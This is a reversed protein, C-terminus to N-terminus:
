ESLSKKVNNEAMMKMYKDLHEHVKEPNKEHIADVVSAMQLIHDGRNRIDDITNKGEETLKANEKQRMIAQAISKGDVKM